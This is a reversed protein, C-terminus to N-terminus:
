KSRKEARAVRIEMLDKARAVPEFGLKNYFGHADKTVLQWQYVDSLEPSNLITQILKSGIGHNRYNDDVIVDLIYAYRTKDSITRAFGVQEGQQNFAGVVLASNFASKKVEEMGIGSCWFSKTLMETVKFFDMNETGSKIIVESINSV